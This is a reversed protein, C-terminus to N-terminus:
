ALGIKLSLLWFSLSFLNHKESHRETRGREKLITEKVFSFLLFLCFDFLFRLNKKKTKPNKQTQAFIPKWTCARLM